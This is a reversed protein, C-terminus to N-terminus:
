RDPGSDGDSRGSKDAYLDRLLKYLNDGGGEGASRGGRRAMTVVRDTLRATIDRLRAETSTCTLWRLKTQPDVAIHQAAWFSLAEADLDALGSSFKESENGGTNNSGALFEAASNPSHGTWTPWIPSFGTQRTRFLERHLVASVKM